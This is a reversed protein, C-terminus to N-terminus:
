RRTHWRVSAGGSETYMKVVRMATESDHLPLAIARM